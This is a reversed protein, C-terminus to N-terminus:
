VFPLWGLLKGLLGERFFAQRRRGAARSPGVRRASLALDVKLRRDPDSLTAYAVDISRETVGSGAGGYSVLKRLRHYAEEIQAADADPRVRLVQYPNSM